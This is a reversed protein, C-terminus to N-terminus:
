KTRARVLMHANSKLRGVYSRSNQVFSVTWFGLLESNLVTNVLARWRDRDQAMDTWDVGDLGIERLVMQINDVWRHRPRGLPRKGELKGVLTRYANKERERGCLRV